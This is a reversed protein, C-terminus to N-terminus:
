GEEHFMMPYLVANRQLINKTFFGSDKAIEMLKENM